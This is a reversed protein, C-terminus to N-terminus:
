RAVEWPWQEVPSSPFGESLAQRQWEAANQMATVFGDEQSRMDFYGDNAAASFWSLVRGYAHSIKKDDICDRALVDLRSPDASGRKDLQKQRLVILESFEPSTNAIYDNALATMGLAHPRYVQTM